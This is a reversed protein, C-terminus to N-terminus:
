PPSLLHADSLQDLFCRLDRRLTEEDVDFGDLLERLIRPETTRSQLRRWIEAGIGEIGFYRKRSPDLVVIEADVENWLLDARAQLARGQTM